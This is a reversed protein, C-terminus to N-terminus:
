YLSKEYQIANMAVLHAPQVSSVGFGESEYLKRAAENTANVDLRVQKLAPWVTKIEHLAFRMLARGYGKGRFQRSVAMCEILAFEECEANTRKLHPMAAMFQEEDFPLGQAEIMEKLSELNLERSKYFEAFGIVKGDNILVKKIQLPNNLLTEMGKRNEAMFFEDSMFGRTVADSGCCFKYPDQFCIEMVADKHSADYNIINAQAYISFVQLYILASLLLNKM